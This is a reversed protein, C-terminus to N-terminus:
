DCSYITFTYTNHTTFSIQHSYTAPKTNKELGAFMFQLLVLLARNAITMAIAMAHTPSLHPDSMHIGIKGSFSCSRVYTAAYKHEEIFAYPSQSSEPVPLRKTDVPM